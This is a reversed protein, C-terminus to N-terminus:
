FFCIFFEDLFRRTQRDASKMSFALMGTTNAFYERTVFKLPARTVNKPIIKLKAARASPPACVALRARRSLVAARHLGGGERASRRGHHSGRGAGAGRQQQRQGAARRREGVCPVHSWSKDVRARGASSIDRVGAALM